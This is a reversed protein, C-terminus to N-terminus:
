RTILRLVAVLLSDSVGVFVSFLVVSLIVVATSELLENRTPWTSKKLENRVEMLFFRVRRLSDSIKSV